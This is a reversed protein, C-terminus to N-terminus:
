QRTVTYKNRRIFVLVGVAIVAIIIAAIAVPIVYNIWQPTSAEIPKQEANGIEMTIRHESHSYNFTILWADSQSESNFSVETRKLLVAEL